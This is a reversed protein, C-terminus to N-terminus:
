KSAVLSQHMTMDGFCRWLARDYRENRGPESFQEVHVKVFLECLTVRLMTYARNEREAFLWRSFLVYDHKVIKNGRRLSSKSTISSTVQSALVVQEIGDFVVEYKECVNFGYNNRLCTILDGNFGIILLVDM